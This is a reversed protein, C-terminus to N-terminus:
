RPKIRSKDRTSRKQRSGPRDQHVPSQGTVTNAESMMSNMELMNDKGAEARYPIQELQGHLSQQEALRISAEDEAVEEIVGMNERQIALLAQIQDNDM